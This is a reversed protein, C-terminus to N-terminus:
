NIECERDPELIGGVIAAAISAYADVISTVSPSVWDANPVLASLLTSCGFEIPAAIVGCDPRIAIEVAPDIQKFMVV